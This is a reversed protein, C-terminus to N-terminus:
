EEALLTRVMRDSVRMMGAVGLIPKPLELELSLNFSDVTGQKRFKGTLKKVSPKIGEGKDIKFYKDRCEKLSDREKGTLIKQIWCDYTYPYEKKVEEKLLVTKEKLKEKKEWNVFYILDVYRKFAPVEAFLDEFSLIRRDAIIVRKHEGDRRIIRGLGQIMLNRTEEKVIPFFQRQWYLEEAKIEPEEPTPYPVKYIFFDAEQKLNLGEWLSRNGILVDYEGTEFLDLLESIGNERNQALVKLNRSELKTKVEEIDRYSSALIVTKKNRKFRDFLCLFYNVYEDRNEYSYASSGIIVDLTSDFRSHYEEQKIVEFPALLGKLSSPLTASMFIVEEPSLNKLIGRWIEWMSNSFMVQYIGIRIGESKKVVAYEGSLLRYNLPQKVKKFLSIINTIKDLFNQVAPTKRKASDKRVSELVSIMRELAKNVNSFYPSAYISSERWNLWLVERDEITEIIKNAASEIREIANKIPSKKIEKITLSEKLLGIIEDASVETIGAIPTKLSRVFSQVEDIILLRNQPFLPIVANIKLLSHTCITLQATQSLTLLYSFPDFPCEESSCCCFSTQRLLPFRDARFNERKCFEFVEEKRCEGKEKLIYEAVKRGCLLNRRGEVFIADIGDKKAREEIERGLKITPVALIVPTKRAKEIAFQTKGWGTPAKLILGNM